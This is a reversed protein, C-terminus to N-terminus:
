APSSFATLCATCDPLWLAPVPSQLDEQVVDTLQQAGPAVSVLEGEGLERRDDIRLKTEQRVAVHSTFAGAVAELRGGQDIFGVHAQHVVVPHLPLIACMKEGDRRLQHAADQDVMCSAMVHLASAAHPMDREVLGNRHASTRVDVENREIVRQVRERADIGALHTDDFHSKK